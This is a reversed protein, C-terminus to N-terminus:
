NESITEKNILALASKYSNLTGYQAGKKLAIM